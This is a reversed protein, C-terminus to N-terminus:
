KKYLFKVTKLNSFQPHVKICCRLWNDIEKESKLHLNKSVITDISQIALDHFYSTRFQLEEPYLGLLTFLKFLFANKNEKSKIMHSFFYLYKVLAFVELSPCQYPIFYYCLELIHHLFLIDNVATEFPIHLIEINQIFYLSRQNKIQYSVLSGLVINQNGSVGKIKGLDKDLIAFTNKKPQYKKLIIGIYKKM